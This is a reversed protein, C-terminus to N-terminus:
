CHERDCTQAFEALSSDFFRRLAGQFPYESSTPLYTQNPCISNLFGRRFNANPEFLLHRVRSREKLSAHM